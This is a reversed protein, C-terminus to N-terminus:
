LQRRLNGIACYCIDSSRNTLLDDITNTGTLEREILEPPPFRSSEAEGVLQLRAEVGLGGFAEQWHALGDAREPHRTLGHQLTDLAALEFGDMDRAAPLFSEADLHYGPLAHQECSKM